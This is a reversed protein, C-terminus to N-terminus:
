GQEETTEAEEPSVDEDQAAPKKYGYGAPPMHRKGTVICPRGTGAQAGASLRPRGTGSQCVPVCVPTHVHIPGVLCGTLFMLACSCLLVRLKM